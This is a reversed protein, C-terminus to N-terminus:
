EKIFKRTLVVGNELTSRVFYCGNALSEINLSKAKLNATLSFLSRGTLDFVELISINQNCKINLQGSVPNPSLEIQESYNVETISTPLPLLPGGGNMTRWIGGNGRVAYCVNESPCYIDRIEPSYCTECLLEYEQCYWTEGGDITKLFSYPNPSYAQGVCYATTNSVNVISRLAYINEFDQIAWSEGDNISTVILGFNQWTDETIGQGCALILNDNLISFNSITRQGVDAFITEYSEWCNNSKGYQGSITRIKCDAAILVERGGYNFDEVWTNGGDTTKSFMAGGDAFCGFGINDDQFAISRYNGGEFGPDPYFWTEGGDITKLVNGYTGVYGVSDSPFYIDYFYNAEEQYVTTWTVGYDTTKRIVNYPSCYGTVFGTSDNIFFVSYLPCDTNSDVLEWQAHTSYAIHLVLIILSKNKM